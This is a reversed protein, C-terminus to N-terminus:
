ADCAIYYHNDRTGATLFSPAAHFDRAPLINVERVFGFPATTYTDSTLSHLLHQVYEVGCESVKAVIDAATGGQAAARVFGHHAPGAYAFSALMLRVAIPQAVLRVAFPLGQLRADPSGPKDVGLTDLLKLIDDVTGQPLACVVASLGFDYVGLGRDGIALATIDGRVRLTGDVLNQEVSVDHLTAGAAYAVQGRQVLLAASATAFPVASPRRFDGAASELRTRRVVVPKHGNLLDRRWDSSLLPGEVLMDCTPPSFDAAIKADPHWLADVPRLDLPITCPIM